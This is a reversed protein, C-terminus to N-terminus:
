EPLCAPCDLAGDLGVAVRLTQLADTAALTGSGDVDCVCLDCALLGVAASLVALADSATVNAADAAFGERTAVLAVPNGCSQAGTLTTTTTDTSTTTSTTTTTADEPAREVAGRDCETDQPRAVGRQDNPFICQGGDVAPSLSDPLRTPTPGGNDALSGLLPDTSPDDGPGALQCSDDSAINFGESDDSAVDICDSPTNYAFISNSYVFSGPAERLVGAGVNGAVTSAHIEVVGSRTSIAALGGINDSVTSNELSFVSGSLGSSHL